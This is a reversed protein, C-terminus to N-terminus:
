GMLQSVLGTNYLMGSLTFSNNNEKECQGGGGTKKSIPLSLTTNCRSM